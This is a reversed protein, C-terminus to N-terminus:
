QRSATQAQAALDYNALAQHLATYASEDGATAPAFQLGQKTMHEVLEPVTKAKIAFKGTFYSGVDRQRLASLADDLNNLFTKAETYLAFPLDGGSKRLQRHLSEVDASLQTITGADVQNNFEAQRVAAQALSNIRERQEKFDPSSLAVPWSFRGENKLLAINGNGKTVNLHKLGDEDLPLQQLNVLQGAEPKSPPLKRLDALLDNLAKGSWIETVPPNNRSRNLQELQHRQREEEATPTKEREYLYEDFVKRRNALRESRVQERTLYAQQTNVLFRGQANIVDAGGRLYGNYPDYYSGYGGYGGYSSDYGPSTAYPNSALTAYPNAYMTAYPNAYTAAPYPNGSSAIIPYSARRVYPNFGLAYPPVNSYAQGITAINFAAQRVSLGPTLLYNPNPRQGEAKPSVIASLILGLVAVVGIRRTSSFM